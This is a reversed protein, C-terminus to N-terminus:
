SRHVRRDLLGRIRQLLEDPAFPKALFAAGEGILGRRAVEDGTYGSTYLVPLEPAREALREGLERGGVGPMILDTLVLDVAAETRLAAEFRELADPGNSAEIVQYGADRLLSAIFALVVPEDDVVLVTEHGRPGGGIAQDPAAPASVPGGTAPAEVRPLVIRVTTGRGPESDVWVYGGSQQVIGHVVSLGLGTGQGVPKTTFFPEFVRARTEQDMGTGTDSATLQIYDGPHLGAGDGLTRVGRAALTEVGITLTGGLPMADRANLTINLLVQELQARDAHVMASSELSGIRLACEAGLAQRLVPAFELVVHTLDLDIQQLVQRRSYALLQQAIRAAREASQQVRMADGHAAHEPGLRRVVFANFGLVGQLANNIEHAVGGALRGVAELRQAAQAQEEVRRRETLDLVYFVGTRGDDDLRAGGAVV